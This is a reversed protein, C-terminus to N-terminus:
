NAQENGSQNLFLCMGQFILDPLFRLALNETTLLPLLWESTGGTVIIETESLNGTLSVLQERASRVMGSVMALCGANVCTETDTGIEASRPLQEGASVKMTGTVLASRMLEFGPAIWGGLYEGEVIFECNAATGFDIVAIARCYEGRRQKVAIALACLWRDIGLKDPHQYPCKIGKYAASTKIEKFPVNLQGAWGALLGAIEDNNVSAATVSASQLVLKRAELPSDLAVVPGLKGAPDCWAYKIRTNGIDILLDSKRDSM